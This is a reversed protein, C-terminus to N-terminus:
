QIISYGIIANRDTKGDVTGSKMLGRDRLVAFFTGKGEATFGNEGCWKRYSEYVTAGNSNKGTKEMTDEFFRRIKDSKKQYMAIAAKVCLPPNEGNERIDQLGALAWNLVSSLVEPEQLEYILNKNQEHEEFHRDFTIIRIRDSTFLTEDTVVPLHNCHMFIKFQPLFEVEDQYLRRATITDGGTLKKIMSGDMLMGKPPESISVFRIGQLRAIDPRAGGGTNNRAQAITQPEVTAGYDGHMKRITEITVTKGNNTTSGLLIRIIKEKVEPLLTAGVSRQLYGMKEKEKMMVESVHKNWSSADACPDYECGCVKSLFDASSHDRAEMTNLDITCNLCNFLNPKSDFDSQEVAMLPQADRVINERRNLGSYSAVYKIYKERVDDYDISRVYILMADIMARVRLLSEVNGKDIQWKSGDYFMNKKITKNYCIEDRFLEAYIQSMGMENRSITNEPQLICLRDYYKLDRLRMIADNM